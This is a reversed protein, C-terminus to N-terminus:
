LFEIISMVARHDSTFSNNYKTADIIFTHVKWNNAQSLLIHDVRCMPFKDGKKLYCLDSDTQYNGVTTFQARLDYANLFLSQTLKKYEIMDVTMNTDAAFIIPIKKDALFERIMKISGEM